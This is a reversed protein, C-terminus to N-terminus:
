QHRQFFVKLLRDTIQEWTFCQKVRQRGYKGMETRLDPKRFLTLIRDALVEENDAPVLFGSKGDEIADPIGGSDSGIVPCECANAELFTIGFGESDGTEPIERSVMVYVDSMSYYKSLDEKPVQDVFIVKQRLQLEEILRIIKEHYAQDQVPGAILYITEPFEKLIKPLSRIVIDHGKREVIRALTLIIRSQRAIGLKQTLNDHNSTRHYFNVDIGNPIVVIKQNPQNTHLRKLMENGTFQSVAAVLDSVEVTRRFQRLMRDKKIKTVDKGHAIVVLRAKKFFRKLFGFSTGLDWTTAIIVGDPNERLFKLIYYLSLWHRYRGWDRGYMPKVTYSKNQHLTLSVKRKWKAYVTVNHGWKTLNDAVGHTWEAIGGGIFPPFNETLIAFHLSQMETKRSM